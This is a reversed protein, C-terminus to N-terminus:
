ASEDNNENDRKGDVSTLEISEISPGNRNGGDDSNDNDKKKNRKKRKKYINKLIIKTCLEMSVLYQIQQRKEM